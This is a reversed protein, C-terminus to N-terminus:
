ITYLLYVLFYKYRGASWGTNALDDETWKVEVIAGIMCIQEYSGLKKEMSTTLKVKGARVDKEVCYEYRVGKETDFEVVITDNKKM